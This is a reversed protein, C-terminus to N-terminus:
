LLVTGLRGRVVSVPVTSLQGVRLGQTAEIRLLEVPRNGDVLRFPHGQSRAAWSQAKLQLGSMHRRGPRRRGLLLLHLKVQVYFNVIKQRRDLESLRQARSNCLELRLLM